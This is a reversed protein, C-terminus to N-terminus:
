LNKYLPSTVPLNACVEGIELCGFNEPNILPLVVSKDVGWKDMDNLLHKATFPGHVSGPVKTFQPFKSYTIHQHIDIIM